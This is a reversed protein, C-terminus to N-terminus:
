VFKPGKIGNGERPDINVSDNTSDTVSGWFTDHSLEPWPKWVLVKWKKSFLCYRTQM